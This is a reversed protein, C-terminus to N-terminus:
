PAGDEVLTTVFALADQTWRRVKAVTSTGEAAVFVYGKMPKGTFDMPRVHARPLAKPHLSPGVRVMLDANTVGCFMKGHFLFAVGGFMKKETIAPHDGLARRIRDALDEDYAM